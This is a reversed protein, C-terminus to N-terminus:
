ATLDYGQPQREISLARDNPSHDIRVNRAVPWRGAVQPRAPTACSIV